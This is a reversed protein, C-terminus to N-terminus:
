LFASCCLSGTAHLTNYQRGRYGNRENAWSRRLCGDDVHRLGHVHDLVQLLARLLEALKLLLQRLQLLGVVGERM